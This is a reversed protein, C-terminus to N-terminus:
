KECIKEGVSEAKGQYYDDSTRSIVVAPSGHYSAKVFTGGSYVCGVDQKLQWKAVIADFLVRVGIRFRNSITKPEKQKVGNNFRVMFGSASSVLVLSDKHWYCDVFQPAELARWVDNSFTMLVRNGGTQKTVNLCAEDNRFVERKKSLKELSAEDLKYDAPMSSYSKM